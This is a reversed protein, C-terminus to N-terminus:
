QAGALEAPKTQRALHQISCSIPGTERCACSPNSSINRCPDELLNLDHGQLCCTQGEQRTHWRVPQDAQLVDEAFLQGVHGLLVDRAEHKVAAMATDGDDSATAHHAVGCSGEGHAEIGSSLQKRDITSEM